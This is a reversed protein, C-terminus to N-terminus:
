YQGRSISGAKGRKMDGGGEKQTAKPYGPAPASTTKGGANTPPKELCKQPKIGTFDGGSKPKRKGAGGQQYGQMDKPM